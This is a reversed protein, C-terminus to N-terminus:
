PIGNEHGKFGMKNVLCAQGCSMVAKTTTNCSLTHFGANDALLLNMHMNRVVVDRGRQGNLIYSDEYVDLRKVSFNWTM